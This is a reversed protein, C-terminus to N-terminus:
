ACIESLSQNAWTGDDSFLLHMRDSTMIAPPGPTTWNALGPDYAVEPTVHTLETHTHAHSWPHPHTSPFQPATHVPNHYESLGRM